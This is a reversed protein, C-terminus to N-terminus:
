EKGGILSSTGTEKWRITRKPPHATLDLSSQEGPELTLDLSESDLQYGEPLDAHRVTLIWTGPALGNFQFEGRADTVARHLETGHCLELYVGSAGQLTQEGQEQASPPHELNAYKEASVDLLLSGSVSAAQALTYNITMTEGGRVQVPMAKDSVAVRNDPLSHRDVQLTYFGPELQVFTYCGNKDTVAM